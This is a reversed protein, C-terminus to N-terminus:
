PYLLSSRESVIFAERRELFDSVLSTFAEPREAGVEHGADYVLVFHCNPMKDRYLRGMEPPILADRTGFVVLTPVNLRALEAETEARSPTRLRQLLARQKAVVGPDRPPMPPQRDPHAFLRRRLEEPSVGDRPLSGEPVIAAPAELVLAQLLDPAAVAVWLALRGGFSVGWLNFRDLGLKRTARVITAALDPYSESRENAPSWGFGPVEIAIVHYREALLEHARSLNLGGAGHLAVLPQGSGAEMYRIHFGDADVYREAFATAVDM